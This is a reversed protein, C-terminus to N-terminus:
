EEFVNFKFTVEQFNFMFGQLDLKAVISHITKQLSRHASYTDAHDIIYIDIGPHNLATAIYFLAQATSRGTRRGRKIDPIYQELKILDTKTYLAKKM